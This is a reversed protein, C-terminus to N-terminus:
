RSFGAVRGWTESLTTLQPPSPSTGKNVQERMNWVFYQEWDGLKPEQNICDQIMTTIDAKSKSTVSEGCERREKSTM